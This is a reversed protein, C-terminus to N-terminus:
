PCLGGISAMPVAMPPGSDTTAGIVFSEFFRQYTDSYVEWKEMGFPRKSCALMELCTPLIQHQEIVYDRLLVAQEFNLSALQDGLERIGDSM